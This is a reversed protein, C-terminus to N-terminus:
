TVPELRRRGQVAATVVLVLVALMSLMLAPVALSAAWYHVGTEWIDPTARNVWGDQGFRVVASILEVAIAVLALSLTASLVWGIVRSTRAVATTRFRWAALVALVLLPLQIVHASIHLLSTDGAAAFPLFVLFSAWVLALLLLPRKM